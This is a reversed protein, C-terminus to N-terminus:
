KPKPWIRGDKTKPTALELAARNAVQLDAACYKCPSDGAYWVVSHKACFRRERM